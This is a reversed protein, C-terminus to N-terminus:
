FRLLKLAEATPFRGKGVLEARELLQEKTCQEIPDPSLFLYDREVQLLVWARGEHQRWQRMWLIQFSTLYRLTLKDRPPWRPVHKLELWGTRGKICYVVDPTGAGIRNEIRHFLGHPSLHRRVTQWLARESSM